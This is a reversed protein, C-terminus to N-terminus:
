YSILRDPGDTWRAPPVVQGFVQDLRGFMAERTFRRAATDRAAESLERRLGPDALLRRLAGAWPRPRGPRVLLGDRGSTILSRTVRLDSALVPAGAAMSEVIKVPCCGQVTNRFTELLPAATFEFCSLAKALRPPSLPPQFYVRNELGLKRTKKRLLKLRSGRGSHIVMLRTEPFLPTLLALAEVLVEVGQWPHLSGVYGFWRGERLVEPPEAEGGSKFFVEDASNPAVGIRGPDLGAQALTERTLESVTVVAQAQFLCFRELDEIKALLGPNASVAPHTAPLEWSPLANVEFVAPTRPLAVLGASGGWPDRFVLLEPDLGALKRHVFAGFEGARKLLNPHHVKFRYIIVGGEVQLAPMDAYGCCLLWVPAYRRALATVMAAIHSSAGKPRPFAEFAIYVSRPRPPFVESIPM